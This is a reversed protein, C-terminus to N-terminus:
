KKQGMGGFLKFAETSAKTIQDFAARTTDIAQQLANGGQHNGMPMGSLMKQMAEALDQSGTSLQQGVLRGFEAQTEATIEAIRRAASLMKETTAQTYQTRLNIAQQPDKAETLARANKIGEEFLNKATEVQLEVIRQSNEMSLQTLRMAADLNKKQLENFQEPKTSMTYKERNTHYSIICHLLM